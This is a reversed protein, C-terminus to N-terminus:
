VERCHSEKGAVDFSGINACEFRLAARDRALSKPHVFIQMNYEFRGAVCDRALLMSHVLIQMNLNGPLVIEQWCISYVLIQV